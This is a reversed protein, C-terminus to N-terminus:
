QQSFWCEYTHYDLNLAGVKQLSPIDYLYESNYRPRARYVYKGNNNIYLTGGGPVFDAYVQAGTIPDIDTYHFRRMDAWTEHVGWGYLAIYKQLMIQTLTLSGPNTPVVSTNTLYASKASPTILAYSPVNFAYQNALMDFHLSIGNTYAALATAKDGKRYSAEAIIFQMESATMVPFQATDRFVFRGSDALPAGVSNFTNGWFNKPLDPTLLGASGQGPQVGKFTGNSNERILYWARPDQVGTFATSNLGSLLNAVYASQRLSGVNGRFPGFYNSTGSTKQGAFKLTINDSNSTPGLNAYYIASDAYHNSLYASKNSLYQYSRALVGYVFKKWKNVDGKNMYADGIALNAASVAGDTRNLNTLARYCTARVTDYVDSPDDYNFQQLSTNFAQKLIISNYQNVMELWGWARIAQAVGVYDWKQQQSGWEIIRNLNQGQGYYFMAWVSGLLDSGGVTGGMQDYQTGGNDSSTVAYNNWYQIYRGIITADGGLGYGSGASSANGLFNGIVGPLLSEIPEVTQANPNQYAADIKKSCSNLFILVAFLSFIGTKIKM